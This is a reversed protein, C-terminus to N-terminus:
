KTRLEQAPAQFVRTKTTKVGGEALAPLKAFWEKVYPMNNHAEFDVQNAWVEYFILHGPSEQDEQFFYVLNKPDSRVLGILPLTVRRLEEAKGAQVKAAITIGALMASVLVGRYQVCLNHLFGARDSNWRELVTQLRAVCSERSMTPWEHSHKLRSKSSALTWLCPIDVM